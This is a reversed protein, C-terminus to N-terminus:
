AAFKSTSVASLQGELTQTVEVRGRVLSPDSLCNHMSEPVSCEANVAAIVEDASSAPALRLEGTSKDVAGRHPEAKPRISSAGQLGRARDVSASRIYETQKYLKEGGYARIVDGLLRGLYRIDPNQTIAPASQAPNISEM